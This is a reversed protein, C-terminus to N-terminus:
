TIAEDYDRVLISTNSLIQDIKEQEIKERDWELMGSSVKISENKIFIVIYKM